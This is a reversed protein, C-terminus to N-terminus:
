TINLVPIDPEPGCFFQVLGIPKVLIQKSAEHKNM